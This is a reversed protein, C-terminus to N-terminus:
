DHDPGKEDIARRIADAIRKPAQPNLSHVQYDCLAGGLLRCLVFAIDAGTQGDSYDNGYHPETMDHDFSIFDPPGFESVFEAAEDLSRVVEWIKGDCNPVDRPNRYDDIFLNYSM